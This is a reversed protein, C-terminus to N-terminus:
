DRTVGLEELKLVVRHVAPPSVSYNTIFALCQGQTETWDCEPM